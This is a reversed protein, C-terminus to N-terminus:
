IIESADAGPPGGQQTSVHGQSKIYIYIYIDLNGRLLVGPAPISGVYYPTQRAHM